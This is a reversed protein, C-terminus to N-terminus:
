HLFTRAMLIIFLVCIGLSVWVGGHQQDKFGQVVLYGLAALALGVVGFAVVAFVVYAVSGMEWM